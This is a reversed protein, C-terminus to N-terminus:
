EVPWAVPAWQILKHFALVLRRLDPALPLMSKKGAFGGPAAAGRQAVAAAHAALAQRGNSRWSMGAEDWSALPRVGSGPRRRSRQVARSWCGRSKTRTRRSPCRSAKPHRIALQFAKGSPAAGRNPTTVLRWIPPATTRLRARRNSRSLKRCCWCSKARGTSSTSTARLEMAPFFKASTSFSKRVANCRAFRNFYFPFCGDVPM